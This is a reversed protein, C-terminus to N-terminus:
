LPGEVNRRGYAISGSSRVDSEPGATRAADAHEIPRPGPKM